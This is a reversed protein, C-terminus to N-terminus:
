HVYIKVMCGEATSYYREMVRTKAFCYLKPYERYEFAIEEEILVIQKNLLFVFLGNTGSKQLFNPHMEFQIWYFYYCISTMAPPFIRLICTNHDYSVSAMFNRVTQMYGCSVSCARSVVTLIFIGHRRRNGGTNESDCVTFGRDAGTCWTIGQWDHTQSGMTGLRAVTGITLLPQTCYTNYLWQSVMRIKPLTHIYVLDRTDIM